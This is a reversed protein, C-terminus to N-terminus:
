PRHEGALWELCRRCVGTETEPPAKFSDVTLHEMQDPLYGFFFLRRRTTAVGYDNAALSMPPLLIYKKAVFSFAQERVACYKDRMLGPVNEALFFKPLSESVIRFFEVFLSNRADDQNRKGIVSFGQCPPGGVVGTLDEGTLDLLAKLARGTLESVDAHLHVTDPFNRRHASMAERDIEAAGRVRLGARSSGLSLAAWAVSYTSSTSPTRGKM